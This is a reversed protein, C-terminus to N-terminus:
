KAAGPAAVVDAGAPPVFRFLDAPLAVNREFANFQLRTSQGFADALEMARPLQDRFGIRVKMFTSDASKPTAEVWASGQPVLRDYAARRVVHSPFHTRKEQVTM